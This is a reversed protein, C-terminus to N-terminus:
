DLSATEGAEPAIANVGLYDRLRQVLFLSAKPEGMVVFVKKLSSASHSVFEVLHDSDKHSSFGEISAIRARVTVREGEIMVEKEGDALRRGLTGAAQYGVFLVTTRPDPLYNREHRVVRGGVSMGSGAIIVKPGPTRSIEASTNANMALRLKPFNFINQGAEIQRKVEPKFYEKARSYIETIRISLPSDVFVPIQPVGGDEILKHMEYLLVQTRELSFSPILLTRKGSITELLTEKLKRTRESAPEHNKNGYVSEMVLFNVDQLEENDPLLPSPSNGLDGTFMLKKDAWSFQYMASGLIHGSNFPIVSLGDRIVMEQHYDITQWRRFAEDLDRSDYIPLIGERRCEYELIHVMDELMPRALDRTAGTSWIPGHFGDKVLKPVRGIHDIHAHTIFLDTIDAPNYPFPDRNKAHAFEGGQFLGCDVLLRTAGTEFLFNAGTVTGSGGYFNIKPSSTSESM